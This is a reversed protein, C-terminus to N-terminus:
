PKLYVVAHVTIGMEDKQSSVSPTSSAMGNNGPVIRRIGSYPAYRVASEMKIEAIHVKKYKLQKAMRQAREQIAKLSRAILDDKYNSGKDESLYFQVNSIIGLERELKGALTTLQETNYSDMIISQSGMWFDAKKNDPNYLREVAYRGTVISVDPYDKAFEKAKSIKDEIYSKVEETKGSNNEVRITARAKDQVIRKYSSESLHVVTASDPIFPIAKDEGYAFSPTSLLTVGLAIYLLRMKM